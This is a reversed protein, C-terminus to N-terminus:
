KRGYGNAEVRSSPAVAWKLTVLASIRVFTPKHAEIFKQAGREGHMPHRQGLQMNECVNNASMICHNGPVGLNKDDACKRTDCSLDHGDSRHLLKLSRIEIRKVTM